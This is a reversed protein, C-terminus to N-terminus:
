RQEEEPRPDGIQGPAPVRRTVASVVRAGRDSWTGYDREFQAVGHEALRLLEEKLFPQETHWTEVRLTLTYMTRHSLVQERTWAVGAPEPPGTM